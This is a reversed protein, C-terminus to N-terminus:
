NRAHVNPEAYGFCRIRATLGTNGKIVKDLREMFADMVPQTRFPELRYKIEAYLPHGRGQRVPVYIIHVNELAAKLIETCLQTCKASLEALAKGPPMKDTPIFITVNPM